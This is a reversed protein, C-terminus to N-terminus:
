RRRCPAVTDDPRHRQLDEREAILVEVRGRRQEAIRVSPVARRLRQQAVDVVEARLDLALARTLARAADYGQAVTGRRAVEDTGLRRAVVAAARPDEGVDGAVGGRLGLKGAVEERGRGVAPVLLTLIAEGDDHRRVVGPEDVRPEADAEAELEGVAHPLRAPLRGDVCAHLDTGPRGVVERLERAEVTLEPTM